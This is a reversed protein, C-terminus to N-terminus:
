IRRLEHHGHFIFTAIKVRKSSVIHGIGPGPDDPDPRARKVTKVPRGKRDTAKFLVSKKATDAAVAALAATSSQEDTGLLTTTTVSKKSNRFM